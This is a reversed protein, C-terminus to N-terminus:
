AGNLLARLDAVIDEVSATEQAYLRLRGDPGFVYAGASHDIVYGMEGEVPKRTAVVRFEEIAARTQAADGRLGLFSPHFWPVFEALRAASDREPDVSVFLVQVRSADAGLATMVSALRALMTPCIDPCSTYGFFVVIAKGRFDDLSRLLGHHDALVLRRGFGAEKLQTNRFVVADRGCGLLSFLSCYLFHRRNM